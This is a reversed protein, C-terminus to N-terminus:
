YGRRRAYRARKSANVCERCCVHDGNRMVNWGTMAHLGRRCLLRLQSM